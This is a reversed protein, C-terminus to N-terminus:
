LRESIAEYKSFGRRRRYLEGGVVALGLAGLVVLLPSSPHSSTSGESPAESQSELERLYAACTWVLDHSSM